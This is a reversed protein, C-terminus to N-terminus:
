SVLYARGGSCVRWYQLDENQAPPSAATVAELPFVFLDRHCSFVQHSRPFDEVVTPLKRLAQCAHPRRHNPLIALKHLM